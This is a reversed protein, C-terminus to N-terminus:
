QALAANLQDAAQANHPREMVVLTAILARREADLGPDRVLEGLREGDTQGGQPGLGLQAMAALARATRADVESGDPDLYADLVDILTGTTYAVTPIANRVQQDAVRNAQAASAAVAAIAANLTGAQEFALVDSLAMCSNWESFDLRLRNLILARQTNRSARMQTQLTTLSQNLLYDRGIATHTGTVIANTTSLARAINQDGVVSAITSLALSASAAGLDNQRISNLLNREYENYSLDVGFMYATVLRNRRAKIDDETGAPPAVSLCDTAIATRITALAPGSNEIAGNELRLVPVAGNELGACGSSAVLVGIFLWRTGRIMKLM